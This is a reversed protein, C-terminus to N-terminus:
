MVSQVIFEFIILITFTFRIDCKKVKILSKKQNKLFHKIVLGEGQLFAHYVLLGSGQWGAPHDSKLTIAHQTLLPTNSSDRRPGQTCVDGGEDGLVGSKPGCALVSGVQVADEHM